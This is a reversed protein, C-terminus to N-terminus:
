FQLKKPCMFCQGDKEKGEWAVGIMPLNDEIDKMNLDKGLLKCFDNKDVTIVPM